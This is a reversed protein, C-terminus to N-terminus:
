SELVEAMEATLVFNLGLLDEGFCYLGRFILDEGLKRRRCLFFFLLKLFIFQFITVSWFLDNHLSLTNNTLYLSSSFTSFSPTLQAM